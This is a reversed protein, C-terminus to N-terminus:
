ALNRPFLKAVLRSGVGSWLQGLPGGHVRFALCQRFSVLRRESITGFNQLTGFPSVRAQLFAFNRPAVRPRVIQLTRFASGQGLTKCLGSPPGGALNKAFSRPAVGAFCAAVPFCAIGSVTEELFGDRHLNRSPSNQCGAISFSFAVWGMRCSWTWRGRRSAGFDGVSCCPM